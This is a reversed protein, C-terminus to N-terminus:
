CYGCTLACVNVKQTRGCYNLKIEYYPRGCKWKMEISKFSCGRYRCMAYSIASKCNYRVMYMSCAKSASLKCKYKSCLVRGTSACVDIQYVRRDACVIRVEYKGKSTLECEIVTGYPYMCQVISIARDYSIGCYWEQTRSAEAVAPEPAAMATLPVTFVMLAVITLMLLSRMRKTKKM